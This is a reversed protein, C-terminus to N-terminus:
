INPFFFRSSNNLTAWQGIIPRLIFLRPLCKLGLLAWGITGLIQIILCEVLSRLNSALLM